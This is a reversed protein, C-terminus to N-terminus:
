RFFFHFCFRVRFLTEGGPKLIGREEADRLIFVAARDKVSGGPNMMECKALINCETQKSADHLKVLPTHGICGVIGNVFSREVFFNSRLALSANM